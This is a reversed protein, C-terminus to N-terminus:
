TSTDSGILVLLCSKYELNDDAWKKISIDGGRKITKWDNKSVPKNEVLVGINRIQQVRFVDNDFHFSYFIQRKAM